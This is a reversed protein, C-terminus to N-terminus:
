VAYWVVVGGGGGGGMVRLQIFVLMGAALKYQKDQTWQPTLDREKKREKEKGQRIVITTVM